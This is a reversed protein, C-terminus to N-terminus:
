RAQSRGPGAGGPRSPPTPITPLREGLAPAPGRDRGGLAEGSFVWVGGIDGRPENGWPQEEGRGAPTGLGCGRVGVAGAGTPEAAGRKETPRLLAWERGRGPSSNVAFIGKNGKRMRLAGIGPGQGCVSGEKGLEM